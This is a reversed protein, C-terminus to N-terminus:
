SLTCKFTKEKEKQLGKLAKIFTDLLNYKEDFKEIVSAQNDGLFSNPPFSKVIEKLIRICQGFSSEIIFLFLVKKLVICM